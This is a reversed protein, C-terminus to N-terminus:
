RGRSARRSHRHCIADGLAVSLVACGKAGAWRMPHKSLCCITVLVVTSLGMKLRVLELAMYVHLARDPRYAGTSASSRSQM